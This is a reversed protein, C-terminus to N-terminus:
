AGPSNSLKTLYERVERAQRSVERAASWYKEQVEEDTAKAALASLKIIQENLLALRCELRQIFDQSPAGHVAAKEDAFALVTANM